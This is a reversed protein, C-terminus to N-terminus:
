VGSGASPDFTVPYEELAGLGLGALGSGIRERDGVVVVQMDDTPLYRQAVATVDDATVGTVERVFRDFYDDPLGHLAIQAVARAIQDATEFNRPYGRTLAAHARALELSTIPRPGAIARVEELIDAIAEATASTQVSTQVVFPGPARRYDFSSRAGYTFGKQERLTFNIRSVFAGGLATNLVALAAYDPTARSAAIRGVRLESQAAGDRHVLSLAAPRSPAAPPPEAGTAARPVAPWLEEALAVAEEHSVDGVAVLTPGAALVTHRHFARV